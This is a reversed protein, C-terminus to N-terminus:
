GMRWRWGAVDKLQSVSERDCFFAKGPLNVQDRGVIYCFLLVQGTIANPESVINRWTSSGRGCPM